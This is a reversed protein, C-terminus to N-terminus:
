QGFVGCTIAVGSYNAFALASTGDGIAFTGGTAVLFNATDSNLSVKTNVLVGAATRCAFQVMLKGQTSYRGYGNKTGLSITRSKSPNPAFQQVPRSIDDSLLYGGAFVSSASFMLLALAILLIRKMTIVEQIFTLPM